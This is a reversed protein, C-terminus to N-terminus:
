EESVQGNVFEKIYRSLAHSNRRLYTIKLDKVEDDFLKQIWTKVLGM